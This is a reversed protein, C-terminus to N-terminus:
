RSNDDGSHQSLLYDSFAKRSTDQRSRSIPISVGDSMLYSDRRFARVYDWNVCYSKHCCWFPPSCLKEAVVDLEQKTMLEEGSTLMIYTSRSAHRLYLIDRYDVLQEKGHYKVALVPYSASVGEECLRNIVEPFYQPMDSDAIFCFHRVDYAKFYNGVNHSHLIVVCHPDIEYIARVLDLAAEANPDMGLVVAVNKINTSLKQLLSEGDKYFSYKVPQCNGADELISRIQRKMMDSTNCFGFRYM